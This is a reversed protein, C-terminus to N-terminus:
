DKRVSLALALDLDEDADSIAVQTVTAPSHASHGDEAAHQQLLVGSGGGRPGGDAADAEADTEADAEANGAGRGGGGGHHLGCRKTNYSAMDSDAVDAYVSLLSPRLGESITSGHRLLGQHTM